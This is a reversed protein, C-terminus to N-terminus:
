GLSSAVMSFAKTITNSAVAMDTPKASAFPALCLAEAFASAAHWVSCCAFSVHAQPGAFIVQGFPIHHWAKALAHVRYRKYNSSIAFKSAAM